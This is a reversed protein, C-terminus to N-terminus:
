RTWFNWTNQTHNIRELSVPSYGRHDHDWAALVRRPTFRAKLETNGPVWFASYPASLQSLCTTYLKTNTERQHGNEVICAGCLWRRGASHLLQIKTRLTWVTMSFRSFDQFTLITIELDPFTRSFFIDGYNQFLGPFTNYEYIWKLQTIFLLYAKLLFISLIYTPMREKMSVCKGRQLHVCRLQFSM